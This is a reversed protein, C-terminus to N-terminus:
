ESPCTGTNCILLKLLGKKDYQLRIVRYNGNYEAEPAKPPKTVLIDYDCVGHEKLIDEAEDLRFGAVDPINM